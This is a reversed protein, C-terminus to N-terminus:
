TAVSRLRPANSSASVTSTLLWGIPRILSVLVPDSRRGSASRACNGPHELYPSEPAFGSAWAAESQACQSRQASDSSGRHCGWGTVAGRNVLPKLKVNREVTTAITSDGIIPISARLLRTRRPPWGCVPDLARHSRQETALGRPLVIPRGIRWSDTWHLVRPTSPGALDTLEEPHM